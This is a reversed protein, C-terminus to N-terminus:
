GRDGRGLASDADVAVAGAITAAVVVFLAGPLKLLHTCAFEIGGAIAGGAITGGLLGFM